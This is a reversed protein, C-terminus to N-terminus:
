RPGFVGPFNGPFFLTNEKEEIGSLAAWDIQVDDIRWGRNDDVQLYVIGRVGGSAGFLTIPVLSTGENVEFDSLRFRQIRTSELAQELLPRLVLEYDRHFAQTNVKQNVLAELFGQLLRYIQGKNGEDGPRYLPGSYFDRPSFKQNWKLERLLFDKEGGSGQSSSDESSEQSFLFGASLLLLLGILKMFTNYKEKSGQTLYRSLMKGLLYPPM